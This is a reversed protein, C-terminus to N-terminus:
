SHSRFTGHVRLDGNIAVKGDNTHMIWAGGSPVSLHGGANVKGQLRSEGQVRLMGLTTLDAAVTVTRDAKVEGEADLRGHVILRPPGDQTELM